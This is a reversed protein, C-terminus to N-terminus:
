NAVDRYFCRGFSRLGVILRGHRGVLWEPAKGFNWMVGDFALDDHTQVHTCKSSEEHCGFTEQECEDRISEAHRSLLDAQALDVPVGEANKLYGCSTSVCVGDIRRFVM